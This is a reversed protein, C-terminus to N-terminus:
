DTEPKQDSGAALRANLGGSIGAIREASERVRLRHAAKERWEDFETLLSEREAEANRLDQGMAQVKGMLGGTIARQRALQQSTEVLLDVIQERTHQGHIHQEYGRATPWNAACCWVPWFKEIKDSM